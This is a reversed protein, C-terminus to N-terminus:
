RRPRTPQLPPLQEIDKATLVVSVFEDGRRLCVQDGPKPVYGDRMAMRLTALDGFNRHKAPTFYSRRLPCVGTSRVVTKLRM